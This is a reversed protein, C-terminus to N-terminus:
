AVGLMARGVADRDRECERAAGAHLVLVRHSLSLVEDLDSSYMVVAAGVAAAARLRTHVDQAARIDLGRTPNEVVLLSPSEDLERALVLKQQNGGSLARAATPAAGGRVDFRAILGETRTRIDGWDIRGRRDGARKLAVNEVLSFDLVLADRQRDEPVFGVSTPTELTGGITATRGGLARLLESQGAGEIAAIGLIEGGRIEFSAGRVRPVGHQDVIVVDRATVVVAARADTAQATPVKADSASPEAGLMASSLAAITMGIASGAFVVRGRRLVTIDDAISLAERLKHTILVVSNGANAFSRLWTLLEAIEQPALVATPEDLILVRANRALAKVIELRQKAGVSLSEVRAGPDLVLGTTRGLHVVRDAARRADFLGSGGLTVNEAVTMAPVNTFHQHVM